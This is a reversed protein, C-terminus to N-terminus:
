FSSADGGDIADGTYISSPDGGDITSTVPAPGNVWLGSTSEYVLIEGDAVNTIAVNHLEELEFGNQVNVFIEGNIANVRTVVGISVMHNPAVPKNAVGFLLQGSTGMWVPDGATATSTNLGAILGETVVFGIANNVLEQTLVGLTKSATLEGDNSAYSVLMNTGNAGSVYVARGKALTSGTSNKVLHKVQPAYNEIWATDYDDGTVKSLIYGAAGGAPVGAAGGTTPDVWFGDYYVYIVGEATSFWVDGVTPNAPATESVIYGGSNDGVEVWFSDYYIYSKATTSDFWYTGEDPNAPATDSVVVGGGGGGSGQAIVWTTGDHVYIKSEDSKFFLDGAAGASPLSTGSPLRPPTLFRRSL